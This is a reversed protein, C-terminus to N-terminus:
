LQAFKPILVSPLPSVSKGLLTHAPQVLLWPGATRPADVIVSHGVHHALRKFLLWPISRVICKASLRAAAPTRSPPRLNKESDWSHYGDPPASPLRAHDCGCPASAVPAGIHEVPPMGEHGVSGHIDGSPDHWLRNRAAPFSDPATLTGPRPPDLGHGTTRSTARADLRSPLPRYRCPLRGSMWRAPSYEPPEAARLM